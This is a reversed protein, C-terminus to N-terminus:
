TIVHESLMNNYYEVRRVLRRGLSNHGTQGKGLSSTNKEKLNVRGGPERVFANFNKFIM